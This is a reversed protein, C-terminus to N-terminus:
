SASWGFFGFVFTFRVGTTDTVFSTFLVKTFVFAFFVSNTMFPSRFVSAIFVSTNQDVTFSWSNFVNWSNALIKLIATSNTQTIFITEITTAVSSSALVTAIINRAWGLFFYSTISARRLNFFLSKNAVSISVVFTWAEFINAFTFWFRFAFNLSAWFIVSWNVFQVKTSTAFDQFFTFFWFETTFVVSDDNWQGSNDVFFIVGSNTLFRPEDTSQDLSFVFEM